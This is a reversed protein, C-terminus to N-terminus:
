LSKESDTHHTGVLFRSIGMINYFFHHNTITVFITHCGILLTGVYWGVM